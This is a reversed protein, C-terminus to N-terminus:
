SLPFHDELLELTLFKSKPTLLDGYLEQTLEVVETITRINSQQCLSLIDDRVRDVIAAFVKM